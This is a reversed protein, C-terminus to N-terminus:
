QEKYPAVLARLMTKICHWGDGMRNDNDRGSYKHGVRPHFRPSSGLTTVFERSLVKAINRGPCGRPGTSFCMWLEDPHAAAMRALPIFVQTQAPVSSVANDVYRELFPFPHHKMIARLAIEEPGLHPVYEVSCMLDSINIVPSIFFPQLIHHIHDPHILLLASLSEIAKQKIARNGRGKLSIEKRWENSASVIDDVVDEMANSLPSGHLIFRLLVVVTVRCIAPSDIITLTKVLAETEEAVLKRLVDLTPLTAMFEVLRQKLDVWEEGDVSELSRLPFWAPTSVVDEIFSGKKSCQNLITKALVPDDVYMTRVGMIKGRLWVLLYPGSRLREVIRTLTKWFALSFFFLHILRSFPDLVYWWILFPHLVLRGLLLLPLSLSRPIWPCLVAGILMESVGTMLATMIQNDSREALAQSALYLCAVVHHLPDDRVTLLYYLSQTWLFLEWSLCSLLLPVAILTYVWELRRGAAVTKAGDAPPKM